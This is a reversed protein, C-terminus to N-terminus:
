TGTLRNINTFAEAQDSFDVTVTDLTELWGRVTSHGSDLYEEISEIHSKRLLMVLPQLRYGDHVV